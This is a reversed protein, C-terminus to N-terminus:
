VDKKMGTTTTGEIFQAIRLILAYTLVSFTVIIAIRILCDYYWVLDFEKMPMKSLYIGTLISFVETLTDRRKLASVVGAIIFVVAMLYTWIEITGMEM